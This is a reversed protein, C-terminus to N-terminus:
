EDQFGKKAADTSAKLGTVPNVAVDNAKKLEIGGIVVLGAIIVLLIGSVVLFAAWLPMILSFAWVAAFLLLGLMYLALVGAVVLEDRLVEVEVP